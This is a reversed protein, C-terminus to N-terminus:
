GGALVHRAIHVARVDVEADSSFETLLEENTLMFDLVSVLFEPEDARERFTEPGVGSLHLFRDLAEPSNVLFALGKLALIAAQDPNMSLAM